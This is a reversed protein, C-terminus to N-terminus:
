LRHIAPCSRCRRSFKRMMAIAAAADCKGPNVFHTNAQAWGPAGLVEPILGAFYTRRYNPRGASDVLPPCTFRVYRTPDRVLRSSAPHAVICPAEHDVAVPLGVVHGVKIHAVRAYEPLARALCGRDTDHCERQPGAFVQDFVEPPSLV